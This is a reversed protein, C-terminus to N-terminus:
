KKKVKQLMDLHEKAKACLEYEEYEILKEMNTKLTNEFNRSSSHLTINCKDTVIVAVDVNRLNNDIAYCIREIIAMSLGLDHEDLVENLTKSKDDVEITYLSKSVM